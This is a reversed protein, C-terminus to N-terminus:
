EDKSLIYVITDHTHDVRVINWGLYLNDGLAKLHADRNHATNTNVAIIIYKM